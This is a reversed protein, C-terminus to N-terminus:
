KEKISKKLNRGFILIVEILIVIVRLVRDSIKKIEEETINYLIIIVWGKRREAARGHALRFEILSWKSKLFNNSLVIITRRSHEILSYIQEM